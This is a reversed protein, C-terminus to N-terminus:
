SLNYGTVQAEVRGGERLRRVLEKYTPQRVIASAMWGEMWGERLAKEAVMFIDRSPSSTAARDGTAEIVPAAPSIAQWTVLALAGKIFDRRNM